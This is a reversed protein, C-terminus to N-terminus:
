KEAFLKKFVSEPLWQTYNKSTYVDLHEGNGYTKLTKEDGPLMDATIIDLQGDNNYDAIDNGMSYRSYHRFHDAGSETFTGNGNNIYYYDNEHFDNGVYIDDWGDNNLDAVAVGLGYGLSSQYIGAQASVDTFVRKAM